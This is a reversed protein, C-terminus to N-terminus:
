IIVYIASLSNLFDGHTKAHKHWCYRDDETQSHMYTNADAYLRAKPWAPSYALLMQLPRTFTSCPPAALSVQDPHHIGTHRTCVGVRVGAAQAGSISDMFWNLSCLVPDPSWYVGWWAKLNLTQGIFSVTHEVVCTSFCMWQTNSIPKSAIAMYSVHQQSSLNWLKHMFLLWISEFPACLKIWNYAQTHKLTHPQTLPHSKLFLILCRGNTILVAATVQANARHNMGNLAVPKATQCLCSWSKGRSKAPAFGAM